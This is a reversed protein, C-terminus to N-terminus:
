GGTKQASLKGESHATATLCWCDHPKQLGSPPQNSVGSLLSSFQPPFGNLGVVPPLATLVVQQPCVPKGDSSGCLLQWAGSSAHKRLNGSHKRLQFCLEATM